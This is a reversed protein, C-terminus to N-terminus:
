SSSVFAMTHTKPSPRGGAQGNQVAEILVLAAQLHVTARQDDSLADQARQVATVAAALLAVADASADTDQHTCDRTHRGIGRCCPRTASDVPFRNRSM